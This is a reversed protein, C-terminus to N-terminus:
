SWVSLYRAPINPFGNAFHKCVEKLGTVLQIHRSNEDPYSIKPDYAMEHVLKIKSILYAHANKISAEQNECDQKNTFISDDFAIYAITETM